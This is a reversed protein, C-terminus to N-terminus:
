EGILFSHRKSVWYRVRCNRALGVRLGDIGYLSEQERHGVVAVGPVRSDEEGHAISLPVTIKEVNNLPSIRELFACSLLVAGAGAGAGHASAYFHHYGTNDYKAGEDRKHNYPDVVAKEDTTTTTTLWDGLHLPNFGSWCANDFNFAAHPSEPLIGRAAKHLVKLFSDPRFLPVGRHQNIPITYYSAQCKIYDSPILM